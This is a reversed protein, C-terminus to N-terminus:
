ILRSFIVGSSSNFNVTGASRGILRVVRASIKFCAGISRSRNKSNNYIRDGSEYKSEAVGMAWM